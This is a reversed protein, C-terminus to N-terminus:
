PTGIMHGFWSPDGFGGQDEHWQPRGAVVFSSLNEGLVFLNGSTIQVGYEQELRACEDATGERIVLGDYHPRLMMHSVGGFHVDIRTSPPNDRTSRLLLRCHSVTYQWVKFYRDSRYLESM